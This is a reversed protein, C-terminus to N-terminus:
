QRSTASKLFEIGILDGKTWVVRCTRRIGESPNDLIFRKPLERLSTQIMAGTESINHVLCTVRRGGLDVVLSSLDETRKRPAIRRDDEADNQENKM